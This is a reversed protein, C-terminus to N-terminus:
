GAILEYRIHNVKELQRTGEPAQHVRVKGAQTLGTLAQVVRGRRFLTDGGLAQALEPLTMGGAKGALLKAIDGAMGSGNRAAFYNYGMMALAVTLGILAGPIM